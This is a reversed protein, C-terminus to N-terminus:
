FGENKIDGANEAWNQVMFFNHALFSFKTLFNAYSKALSANSDSVPHTPFGMLFPMKKTGLMERLKAGFSLVPGVLHWFVGRPEGRWVLPTGQAGCLAGWNPWGDVKWFFPGKSSLPLVFNPEM